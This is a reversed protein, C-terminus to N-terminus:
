PKSTFSAPPPRADRLHRSSSTTSASTSTCKGSAHRYLAVNKDHEAGTRAFRHQGKGDSVFYLYDTQQPHLAAELSARGPNGIPGPPLGPVRYTNYPSTSDLDSQHIVGNYRDALLAAYVVTPDAGLLM